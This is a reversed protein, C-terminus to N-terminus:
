SANVSFQIREARANIQLSISKVVIPTYFCSSRVGVERERGVHCPRLIKGLAVLESEDSGYVVAVAVARLRSHDVVKEARVVHLVVLAVIQAVTDVVLVRVVHTHASEEVKGVNRCVPFVTEFELINKVLQALVAIRVAATDVCLAVTLLACFVEVAAAGGVVSLERALM